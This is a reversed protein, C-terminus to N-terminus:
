QKKNHISEKSEKNTRSDAEICLIYKSSSMTTRTPGRKTGKHRDTAEVHFEHLARIVMQGTAKDPLIGPGRQGGKERHLCFFQLFACQATHVTVAARTTKGAGNNVARTM